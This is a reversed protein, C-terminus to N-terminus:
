RMMAGGRKWRVGLGSIGLVGYGRGEEVAGRVWQDGLVGYGRGEEVAGRVWHDGLVSASNGGIADNLM